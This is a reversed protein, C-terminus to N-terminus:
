MSDVGANAYAGLEATTTSTVIPDLIGYVAHYVPSVLCMFVLSMQVNM